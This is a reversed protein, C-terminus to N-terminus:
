FLFLCFVGGVVRVGFISRGITVFADSAPKRVLSAEQFENASTM